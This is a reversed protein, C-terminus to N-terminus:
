LETYHNSAFFRAPRYSEPIELAKGTVLEESIMRGLTAACTVAPHMVAVYVGTTDGIFGIIPCGDAPVPRQGVSQSLLQASETGKLSIKMAALTDSAINDIGGTVPYDEVAFIDGNRTHRVEIDHGSILTNVVHGTAGFRLLIAPSAMIPLPTGIADFLPSIGTGCALILCDAQLVGESTEIGTIKNGERTFGIVATQSKLTAGLGCARDLLVLTADIPDVAGDQQAYYARQPPNNLAPELQSIGPQQLLHDDAQSELSFDDYSIAGTWNVWLEPIEKELRHWDAVSARRLLADPADDSVTSHIWGFSSGTAGSAPQGKDIVTVKIGRNALHYAISAGMIGAGVVIMHKETACM